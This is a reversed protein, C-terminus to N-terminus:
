SHEDKGFFLQFLARLIGPATLWSANPNGTLIQAARPNFDRMAAHIFPRAKPNATTWIGSAHRFPAVSIERALIQAAQDARSRANNFVDLSRIHHDTKLDAHSPQFNYMEELAKLILPVPDYRLGRATVRIGYVIVYALDPPYSVLLHFALEGFDQWRPPKGEIRYLATLRTAEENADRIGRANAQQAAARFISQAAEGSIRKWRRSAPVVSGIFGM